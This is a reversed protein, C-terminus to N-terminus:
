ETPSRSAVYHARRREMDAITGAAVRTLQLTPIGLTETLAVDKHLTPWARISFREAGLALHIGVSPNAASGNALVDGLGTRDVGLADGLDFADFVLGTIATMLTNNVLKAAQAAGLGGVHVIKGAYAAFMPACRQRPEADGGTIVLLRGEAAANGGSVPADVVLVGRGAVRGALDRVYDPGVTAHIALVTGPRIRSMLGDEGSLVADTADAGYLCLGIVDCHAGLDAPSSAIRTDAGAYRDLVEKRRAWLWPRLGASIMREAMPTGQHGLGIFGYTM